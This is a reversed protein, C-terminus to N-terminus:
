LRTVVGLARLKLRLVLLFLSVGGLGLLALLDLLLVLGLEFRHLITLLLLAIRHLLPLCVFSFLL